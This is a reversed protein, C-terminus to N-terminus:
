TEPDGEERGQEAAGQAAVVAEAKARVPNRATM